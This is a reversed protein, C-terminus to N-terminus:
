IVVYPKSSSLVIIGIAALRIDLFAASPCVAYATWICQVLLSSADQIHCLLIAHSKTTSILVDHLKFTLFKIKRSNKWKTNETQPWGCVVSVTMFVDTPLSSSIFKGLLIGSVPSLKLLMLNIEECDDKLVRPLNTGLSGMPVSPWWHKYLICSICALKHM